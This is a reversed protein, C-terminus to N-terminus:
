EKRSMRMGRLLQEYRKYQPNRANDSFASGASTEIISTGFLGAQRGEADGEWRGTLLM